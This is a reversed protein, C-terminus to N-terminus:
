SDPSLVVQVAREVKFITSGLINEPVGGESPFSQSLDSSKSLISILAPSDAVNFHGAGTSFAGVDVFTVELDAIPRTDPLNGLRTPEASILASLKLARDRPSAFIVFPQPLKGIAQAQKRFVGLDIDPSMLVVGGIKDLVDRRGGIALQRLAEMILSTGMSHGVLVLRGRGPITTLDEITRVLSDRSYLAADRDGTYALPEAQSPWSFHAHVGPVQLDHSMQAMRYVGEAFSYNYGHVFLVIDRDDPARQALDRTLAQRFSRGDQYRGGGTMVFQKRPDAAKDTPPYTITGSAREPPVSIDMRFYQPTSLREGNIDRDSAVYIQEVTGIAAADPDVVIAGRPACGALLVIFVSFVIQRM